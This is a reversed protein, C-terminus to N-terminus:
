FFSRCKCFFFESILVNLWFFLDYFNTCFWCIILYVYLFRNINNNFIDIIRCFFFAISINFIKYWTLYYCFNNIFVIRFCTFNFRFFFSNYDWSSSSYSKSGFIEISFIFFYILIDYRIFRFYNKVVSKCSAIFYNCLSTYIPFCNSFGLFM